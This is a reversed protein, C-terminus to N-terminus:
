LVYGVGRRFLTQWLYEEETEKVEETGEIMTKALRGKDFVLVLKLDYGTKQVRVKAFGLSSSSKIERYPLTYAELKSMKDRFKELQEPTGQVLSNGYLCIQTDQVNLKKFKNPKIGITKFVQEKSMGPKLATLREQMDDKSKFLETNIDHEGSPVCAGLPILFFCFLLIRFNRLFSQLIRNGRHHTHISAHM